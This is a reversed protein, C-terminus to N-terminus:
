RAIFINADKGKLIKTENGKILKWDEMKGPFMKDTLEVESKSGNFVSLIRNNGYAREFSIIKKRNNIYTTKFTGHTLASNNKRIHILDRYHNYIDDNFSVENLPRKGDCDKLYDCPHAIESDYTNEPWVMPKRCDPDDAGWMGAEDGYYILPAGPYIFQLTIITKQIQREDKGPMQIRFDWNKWTGGDHDIWRDPNMIATALRETDHSDVMNQLHLVNEYEYDKIVSHLLRDFKKASVQKKEDIFFKFAADGFRYNMVSNFVDSQIWPAANFMKNNHHDEWWVEGNIYADPNIEKVWGNFEKWFNINVLEAVDLRWGDIGDSPDGDNNPDMWRNVISFFHNKIEPLPGDMNEKFEALDKIGYWGEYDFENEPTDPNDYSIINFWDSYASKEGNNKVDQLAWFPIGVHNFVGDIIIRMNRSHVEQILQLFLKDAFTWQWTSPDEPNESKWIKVDESPNPGFNNDVHHFYKAGYKHSSPSEFVPNLYIADIGLDKLYDLKDIIGQLDGGYRRLQFQYRYDLGNEKEWPQFEYWDSTWPTINWSTQEEYPWTGELSSIDPDNSPDGNNFREPFIQYWVAGKAWEPQFGNAFSLTTIFILAPILFKM